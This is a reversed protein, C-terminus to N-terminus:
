GLWGLAWWWAVDAPLLLLMTAAALALTLKLVARPSLDTIQTAVVLPPSQYPLVNNAFGLVESMLVARLPLGTAQALSGALPTMVAPVGPSTTVLGIATGMAALAALNRGGAGPALPLVREVARALDAGIGSHSILAGVGLVGAVFFLSAYSIREQFAGAPALRSWPLLVVLGAGLSIWAAPIRHLFDTAWLALCAALLAAVAKEKPTFPPPRGPPTAGPAIRDPWLLAVLAVIVAARALGLVPFHLVLYEGYGLFLGYQSEAAGALVANPVNAPLVALSPV